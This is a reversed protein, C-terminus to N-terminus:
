HHGRSNPTNASPLNIDKKNDRLYDVWKDLTEIRSLLLHLCIAILIFVIGLSVLGISIITENM